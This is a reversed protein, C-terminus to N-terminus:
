SESPWPAGARDGGSFTEALAPFVLGFRSGRPRGGSATVPSAVEVRGGQARVIEAVIYLGLGVGDIGKQRAAESRHFREFIAEREGPPVGMGEDEVSLAVEPRPGERRAVRVVIRKGGDSFKVANSLLNVVAGATADRDISVEPAADALDLELILGKEEVVPKLAGAVEEALDALDVPERRYRRDGAEIRAAELVNDVLGGLRTAERVIVAAFRAREQEDRDRGLALTEGYLRIAALPTKLDHTANRLMAEQLRVFARERRAARLLAALGLLAAALSVAAATGLTAIRLALRRGLDARGRSEVSLSVDEVAPGLPSRVEGEGGPGGEGPKLLAIALGGPLAVDRALLRFLAEEEVVAARLVVGDRTTPVVALYAGARPLLLFRAADARRAALIDARRAALPAALAAVRATATPALAELRQRYFAIPLDGELGLAQAVVLAADTRAALADAERARGARAAAEVALLATRLAERRDLGDGLPALAAFADADRHERLLALGRERAALATTRAPSTESSDGPLAPELLRGDADLAFAIPSAGPAALAIAAERARAEVADRLRRAEGELEARFGRRLEADADALARAGFWVVAALLPVLGAVLLFVARRTSRGGGEEARGASV